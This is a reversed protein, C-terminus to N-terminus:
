SWIETKSSLFSYFHKIIKNKEDEFIICQLNWNIDETRDASYIPVGLETVWAVRYDNENGIFIVPIGMAICPLLCHLRTTIVLKANKMYQYLLHRGYLWRIAESHQVSISHTFYVADKKIYDPIKLHEADVIYVYGTQPPETRLPLTLTLCKSVFTDIGNKKLMYATYPDRCGIPEYKKFYALVEDQLFYSWENHWNTIHFGWFVPILNPSAPLCYAPNHSFWGNMIVYSPFEPSAMKLMDRDYRKRVPTLLREVAISQIYDGANNLGKYELGVFDAVQRM